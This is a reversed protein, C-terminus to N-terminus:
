SDILRPSINGPPTVNLSNRLLFDPASSRAAPPAVPRHATPVGGEGMFQCFRTSLLSAAQYIGFSICFLPSASRYIGIPSQAFSFSKRTPISRTTYVYSKRILPRNLLSSSFRAVSNKLIDGGAFLALGSPRAAIQKM